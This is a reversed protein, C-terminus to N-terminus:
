AAAKTIAGKIPFTVSKTSLSSAEGGIGSALVIMTGSFIPNTASVTEDKYVVSFFLEGTATDMAAWLAAWLSTAQVDNILNIRISNERTGARSSKDSGFTAPFEITDRDRMLEVTTVESKYSVATGADAGAKFEGRLILLPDFAM